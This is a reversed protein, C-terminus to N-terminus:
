RSSEIEKRNLMKEEIDLRAAGFFPVRPDYGKMKAVKICRKKKLNWVVQEGPTSPIRM